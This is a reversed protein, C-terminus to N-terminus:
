TDHPPLAQLDATVQRIRSAIEDKLPEVQDATMSWAAIEKSSADSGPGDRFRMQYSDLLATIQDDEIWLPAGFTLDRTSIWGLQGPPYLWAISVPQSRAPTRVRLSVGRSGWGFLVGADRGANLLFEATARQDVPFGDLFEPERITSAHFGVGDLALPPRTFDTDVTRRPKQDVLSVQNDDEMEHLDSVLLGGVDLRLDHPHVRSVVDSELPARELGIGLTLRTPGPSGGVM